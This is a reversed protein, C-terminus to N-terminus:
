DQYLGPSSPSYPLPEWVRSFMSIGQANRLAVKFCEAKIPTPQSRLRLNTFAGGTIRFPAFKPFWQGIINKPFQCPSPASSPKTFSLPILCQSFLLSKTAKM